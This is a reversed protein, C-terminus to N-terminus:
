ETIITPEIAPEGETTATHTHGAAETEKAEEGTAATEAEKAAEEAAKAAAAAEAKAQKNLILAFGGLSIKLGMEKLKTHIFKKSYGKGLLLKIDGMNAKIINSATNKAEPAPKTKDLVPLEEVLKSLGTKLGEIIEPEYEYMRAEQAAKIIEARTLTAPAKEAPKQTGTKGAAAKGTKTEAM